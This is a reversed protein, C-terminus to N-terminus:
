VPVLTPALRTTQSVCRIRRPFEKPFFRQFGPEFTYYKQKTKENYGDEHEAKMTYRFPKVFGGGVSGVMVIERATIKVAYRTGDAFAWKFIAERKTMEVQPSPKHPCYNWVVRIIKKLTKTVHYAQVCTDLFRAFDHQNVPGDTKYIIVMGSIRGRVTLM